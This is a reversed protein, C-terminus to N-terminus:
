CNYKNNENKIIKNKIFRKIKNISDIYKKCINEIDKYNYYHECLYCFYLLNEDDYCLDCMENICENLSNNGCAQCFCESNDHNYNM